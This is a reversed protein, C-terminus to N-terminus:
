SHLDTASRTRKQDIAAVEDRIRPILERGFAITDNFPDFGRILVSEVGIEYYGAVARAVQEPTGVLCSTNGLAGTAKAIGMWLCSDYVDSKIAFDYVRKGATDVPLNTDEQRAWGKQGAMGALIHNAKDWAAGETEAIIPRLSVNFRPTRGFRAAMERFAAIREATTALPEGYIAYVDCHEAGMTLAGESAGGFFLPPHPNQWPTVDSSAGCVQYFQGQYDFPETAAWTKRMVDLYEAARAYRETKPSFDGDGQQERDSKGTIIHVALRGGTIQDFTAIKRAMLTPAVFGPRHAVLYSIRDTHAAAHQAVLFGEASSSSYGVLVMDFGATEHAEAFAVVYDPSLAGEIVILQTDSPPPSVGIMGIIRIPMPVGSLPDPASTPQPGNVLRYEIAFTTTDVGEWQLLVIAAREHRTPVVPEMYGKLEVQSPGACIARGASAM